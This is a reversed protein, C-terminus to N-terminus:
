VDNRNVPKVMREEPLTELQGAEIAQQILEAAGDGIVPTQGFIEILPRLDDYNVVEVESEKKQDDAESEPPKTDTIMAAGEQHTSM